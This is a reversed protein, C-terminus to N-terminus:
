RVTLVLGQQAYDAVIKSTQGDGTAVSSIRCRRTGDKLVARARLSSAFAAAQATPVKFLDITAEQVDKSTELDRIEVAVTGSEGALSTNAATLDLVTPSAADFLIKGSKGVTVALGNFTDAAKAQVYGQAVSLMGGSTRIRPTAALALVGDGEKVLRTASEYAIPTSVTATKGDPVRVYGVQPFYWGRNADDFTSTEALELRSQNQLEVANYVYSAPSAGLNRKEHVRLTMNSSPGPAYPALGFKEFAANATASAAQLTRVQIKGSYGSNDGSLDATANFWTVVYRNEWGAAELSPTVSRLTLLQDVTPSTIPGPIRLTDGGSASLVAQGEYIILEGCLFDYVRSPYYNFSVVPGGGLYLAKFQVNTTYINFSAGQIRYSAGPFVYPECPVGYEPPFIISNFGLSAYDKESDEPATPKKDNTWFTNANDSQFPNSGVTNSHKKQYVIERTTVSVIKRGDEGDTVVIRARPLTYYQKEYVGTMTVKSFDPLGAAYAKASLDFLPWSARAGTNTGGLNKNHIVIAGPELVLADEIKIVHTNKSANLKLTGGAKVTLAGFSSTGSSANLRLMASDDVQIAGPTSFSDQYLTNACGIEFTGYFDPWSSAIKWSQGVMGSGSPMEVRVWATAGGIFNQQQEYDATAGSHRLIVPNEETGLITWDGSLIYSQSTWVFKSGPLFTCTPIVLEYSWAGQHSVAGAVVLDDGPFTHGDTGYFKTGFINFTADPGLYYKHGDTAAETSSNDLTWRIGSGSNNGLSSYDTRLFYYDKYPGDASPRNSLAAFAAGSCATLVVSVMTRVLRSMRTQSREM